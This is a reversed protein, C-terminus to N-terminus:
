WTELGLFGELFIEGSNIHVSGTPTLRSCCNWTMCQKKKTKHKLKDIKEQFSAAMYWRTAHADDVFTKSGQIV